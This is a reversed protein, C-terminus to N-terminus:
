NFNRMVSKTQICTVIFSIFCLLARSSSIENFLRRKLLHIGYDNHSSLRGFLPLAAELVVRFGEEWSQSRPFQWMIVFKENM